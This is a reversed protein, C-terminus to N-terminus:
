RRMGMIDITDEWLIKDMGSGSVTSVSQTDEHEFTGKNKDFNSPGLIM